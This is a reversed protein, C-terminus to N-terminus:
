DDYLWMPMRYILACGQDDLHNLAAAGPKVPGSQAPGREEGKMNAEATLAQACCLNFSCELICATTSM